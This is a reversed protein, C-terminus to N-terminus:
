NAAAGRMLARMDAAFAARAGADRYIAHGAHYCRFTVADRYPPELRRGLEADMSCGGLADYAGHPVLVRLNPNVAMAEAAGPLPPGYSSMGILGKKLWEDSAAKIEEPTAGYVRSHAWISNVSPPYTGDPAFGDEVPEVGLYPLDSVYGLDHRIHRVGAKLSPPTYPTGFRYDSYYALNGPRINGLFFGQTIALTDLNIGEPKLGTRAALDARVKMREDSSLASINRLAPIYVDKAWRESSARVADPTTGIEPPIKGYHLAAVSYDAIHMASSILDQDPYRPLCATNSILALGRVDFGRELLRYTVSGARGAGYSQGAIVVRADEEGHLLLWSRVFETTAAIDGIISTFAEQAKPSVARSFGTGVPDVFVLDSDTLWTDANDVLVGNEIRRPGFGEFNLSAAPAGPGGNWIFTIPRTKGRQAPMRYAIYFVHGVPEGTAVDRVPIRGAEATYALTRGEIRIKHSTVVPAPEAAASAAMFWGLVILGLWAAILRMYPTAKM